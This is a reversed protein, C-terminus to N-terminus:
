QRHQPRPDAKDQEKFADLLRAFRAPVEDPLDDRYAQKLTAAVLSSNETSDDMMPLM